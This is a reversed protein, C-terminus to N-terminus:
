FQCRSVKRGHNYEKIWKYIFDLCNKPRCVGMQTSFRFFIHFYEDFIPIKKMITIMKGLMEFITKRALVADFLINGIFNVGCEDM